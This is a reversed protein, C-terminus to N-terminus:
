LYLGRQNAASKNTNITEKAMRLLVKNIKNSTGNILKSVYLQTIVLGSTTTIGSDKFHKVTGKITKVVLYKSIVEDEFTIEDKLLLDRIANLKVGNKKSDEVVNNKQIELLNILESINKNRNM